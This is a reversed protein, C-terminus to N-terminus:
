DRVKLIVSGNITNMTIERILRSHGDEDIEYPDQGDSALIQIMMGPEIMFIPTIGFLFNESLDSMLQECIDIFKDEPKIM